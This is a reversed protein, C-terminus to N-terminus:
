CRIVEDETVIVQVGHDGGGNPVADVVQLAFAVAVALAGPRTRPLFRDYFGGGYGVRHGSRDFAVGPVVVLDIEQPAVFDAGSPEMAGFGTERVDDGPRFAVAELADGAIRPLVVRIGAASWRDILGATEVESGFSWYAMGTRAARGEPLALVRDVIKGSRAAREDPSLADRQAVM